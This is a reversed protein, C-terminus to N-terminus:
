PLSEVAFHQGNGYLSNDVTIATVLQGPNEPLGTFDLRLIAGFAGYPM